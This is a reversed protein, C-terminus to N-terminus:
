VLHRLSQLESKHEESRPQASHKQARGIVVSILRLQPAQVLLTEAAAHAKRIILPLDLDYAVRLEDLAPFIFSALHRGVCCQALFASQRKRRSRFRFAM